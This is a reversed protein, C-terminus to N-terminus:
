RLSVVKGTAVEISVESAGVPAINRGAADWAGVFRRRYTVTGGSVTARGGTARNAAYPLISAVKGTTSNFTVLAATITSPAEPSSVVAVVPRQYFDNTFQMSTISDASTVEFVFDPTNTGATTLSSIHAGAATATNFVVTSTVTDGRQGFLFGSATTGLIGNGPGILTRKTVFPSWYPRAGHTAVALQKLTNPFVTM